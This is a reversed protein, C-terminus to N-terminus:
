HPLRKIAETLHVEPALGQIKCNAMLTYLLANNVGGELSGFFLFNKAGVKALRMNNALTM